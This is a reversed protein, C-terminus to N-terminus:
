HFIKGAVFGIPNTAAKVVDATKKDKVAADVVAGSPDVATHLSEKVVGKVLGRGGAEGTKAATDPLSAQADKLDKRADGLEKTTATIVPLADTLSNSMKILGFGLVALGAALVLFSAFRSFERM